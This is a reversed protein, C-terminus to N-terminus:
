ARAKLPEAPIFVLGLNQRIKHAFALCPSLTIAHAAFFGETQSATKTVKAALTFTVVEAAISRHFRCIVFCHTTVYHLLWVM